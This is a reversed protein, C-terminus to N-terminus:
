KKELFNAHPGGDEYDIFNLYDIYPDKDEEKALEQLKRLEKEDLFVIYSVLVMHMEDDYDDEDEDEDFDDVDIDEDDGDFYMEFIEGDNGPRVIYGAKGFHKKFEEDFEVPKFEDGGNVLVNSLLKKLLRVAEKDDLFAKSVSFTYDEMGLTMSMFYVTDDDYKYQMIACPVSTEEDEYLEIPKKKFSFHNAYFRLLQNAKESIEM